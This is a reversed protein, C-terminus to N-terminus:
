SGQTYETFLSLQMFLLSFDVIKKFSLRCKPPYHIHLKCDIQSTRGYSLTITLAEFILSIKHEYSIIPINFSYKAEKQLLKHVYCNDQQLNFDM